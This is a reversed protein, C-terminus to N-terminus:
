VANWEPFLFLLTVFRCFKLLAHVFDSRNYVFQSPEPFATSKKEAERYISSVLCRHKNAVSVHNEREKRENVPFRPATCAAANSPNEGGAGTGRAADDRLIIKNNKSLNDNVFSIGQSVIRISLPPVAM